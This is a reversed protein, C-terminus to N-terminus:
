FLVSPLYTAMGPVAVLLVVFAVMILFFPLVAKSVFALSRGSMMQMIFLNLGVPPTVMSMEVMLVMYVGFWILDIGAAQVTPLLLSSALVVISVGDLFCGLIGFLITLVLLLGHASLQYSDIFKAITTPLGTFDVASSLFMSGMIIFAIMCSTRVSERVSEIFNARTL